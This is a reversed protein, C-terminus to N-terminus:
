QKVRGRISSITRPISYHLTSDSFSISDIRVDYLHQDPSDSTAKLATDPGKIHLVLRHSGQATIITGVWDGAVQPYGLAPWFIALISLIFRM